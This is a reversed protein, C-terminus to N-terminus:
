AFQKQVNAGKVVSREKESQTYIRSDVGSFQILITQSWYALWYFARLTVQTAAGSQGSRKLTRGQIMESHKRKELFETKRSM